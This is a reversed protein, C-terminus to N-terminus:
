LAETIQRQRQRQQVAKLRAPGYGRRYLLPLRKRIRLSGAAACHVCCLYFSLDCASSVLCGATIASSSSVRRMSLVLRVFSVSRIRSQARPPRLPTWIRLSYRAHLTAGSGVAKTHNRNTKQPSGSPRSLAATNFELDAHLDQADNRATCGDGLEIVMKGFLIGRAHEADHDCIRNACVSRILARRQVFPPHTRVAM